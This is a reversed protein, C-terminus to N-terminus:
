LLAALAKRDIKGNTNTPFADLAIIRRPVMYSPLVSALAARLKQTRKLSSLGDPEQLLVFAALSSVKGDTYVPLVAARAVNELRALNNEM